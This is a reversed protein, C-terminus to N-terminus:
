RGALRGVIPEVRALDVDSDILFTADVECGVRQRRLRERVEGRGGEGDGGAGEDEGLRDVADPGAVV